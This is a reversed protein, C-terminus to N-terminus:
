KNREQALKGQAAAVQARGMCVRDDLSSTVGRCVHLRGGGAGSAAQQQGLDGFTLRM